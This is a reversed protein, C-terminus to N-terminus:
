TYLMRVCRNRQERVHMQDLQDRDFLHITIKLRAAQTAEKGRKARNRIVCVDLFIEHALPDQFVAGSSEM